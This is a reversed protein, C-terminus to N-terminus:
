AIAEEFFTRLEADLKKETIREYVLYGMEGYVDVSVNPKNTQEALRAGDMLVANLRNLWQHWHDSLSVAPPVPRPGREYGRQLNHRIGAEAAALTGTDISSDSILRLLIAAKAQPDAEAVISAKHEPSIGDNKMGRRMDGAQKGPSREQKDPAGVSHAQSWSLRESLASQGVGLVPALTRQTWRVGATTVNDLVWAVRRCWELREGADLERWSRVDHVFALVQETDWQDQM